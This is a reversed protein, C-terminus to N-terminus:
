FVEANVAHPIHVSDLRGYKGRQGSQCKKDEKSKGEYFFTAFVFFM